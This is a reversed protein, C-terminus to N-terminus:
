SGPAPANNPPSAAPASGAPPQYEPAGLGLEGSKPLTELYALAKWIKESGLQSEWAPMGGPRGKTVTLFLDADAHGYKWYPDILSPGILGSADPKHCAACITTFTQQGDAIAAANGRFPNSDPTAPATAKIIARAQELQAAYQTEQTWGSRTYYPIYVAAFLVTGFFTWWWWPPIPNDEEGIGDHPAEDSRPLEAIEARDASM